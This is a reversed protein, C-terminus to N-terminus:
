KPRSVTLVDLPGLHHLRIGFGVGWPDVDSRSASRLGDHTAALTPLRSQNRPPGLPPFRVDRAGLSRGRDRWEMWGRVPGNSGETSRLCLQSLRPRTAARRFASATGM